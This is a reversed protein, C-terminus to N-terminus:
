KYKRCSSNSFNSFFSLGPMKFCWCSGPPSSPNAAMDGGYFNDHFSIGHHYNSSPFQHYSPQVGFPNFNQPYFSPPFSRPDYQHPSFSMPQHNSVMNNHTQTKLIHARSQPIWLIQSVLRPLTSWQLYTHTQINAHTFKMYTYISAFM